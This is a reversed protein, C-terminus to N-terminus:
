CKPRPFHHELPSHAVQAQLRARRRRGRELAQQRRRRRQRLRLRLPPRPIPLRDLRRPPRRQQRLRPLPPRPPSPRRQPGHPPLAPAQRPQPRGQVRDGDGARRAVAGGEEEDPLQDAHVQLLEASVREGEGAEAWVQALQVRGGVAPGHVDAGGCGGGGPVDGSGGTAAEAAADGDRWVAAAVLAIWTLFGSSLTEDFWM